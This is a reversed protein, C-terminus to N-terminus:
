ANSPAGTSSDPSILNSSDPSILNSRYPIAGSIVDDYFAQKGDIYDIADQIEALKTELDRRKAALIDKREPITGEGELCLRTYRQMEKISLGCRRLCDLGKLWAIARDDFVRRNNGDRRVGPVLGQNCYFKLAEYNMGTIECTQKMSHLKGAIQTQEAAKTM